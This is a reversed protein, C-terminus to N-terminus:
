KFGGFYKELMMKLHKEAVKFHEPTTIGASNQLHAMRDMWQQDVKLGEFRNMENLLDIALEKVRSDPLFDYKIDRHHSQGRPVNERKPKFIVKQSPNVLAGYETDLDLYKNDKTPLAQKIMPKGVNKLKLPKEFEAQNSGFFAYALAEELLPTWYGTDEKGQSGQFLRNFKWETEEEYGSNDYIEGGIVYPKKLIDWWV